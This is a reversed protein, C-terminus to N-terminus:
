HQWLEEGDSEIYSIFDEPRKVAVDLTLESSRFDKINQTIVCFANGARALEYLFNDAEDKLNPRFLFHIEVWKCISLFDDLFENRDQQSMIDNTFVGERSLVDEYELFLPESIIPQIENMFAM